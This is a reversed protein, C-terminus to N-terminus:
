KRWTSCRLNSINYRQAQMASALAWSTATVSFCLNCVVSVHAPRSSWLEAWLPIFVRVLLLPSAIDAIVSSFIFTPWWDNESCHLWKVSWLVKRETAIVSSGHIASQQNTHVCYWTYKLNRSVLRVMLRNGNVHACAYHCNPLESFGPM